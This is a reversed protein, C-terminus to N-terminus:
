GRDLAPGPRPRPPATRGHSAPRPAAVTRASPATSNTRTGLTRSWNTWGGTGSTWNTGQDGVWFRLDVGSARREALQAKYLSDTPNNTADGLSVRTGIDNTDSAGLNVFVAGDGRV